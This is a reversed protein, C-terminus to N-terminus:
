GEQPDTRHLCSTGLGRPFKRGCDLLWWVLCVSMGLTPAPPHTPLGM